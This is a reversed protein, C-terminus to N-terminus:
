NGYLLVKWIVWYLIDCSKSHSVPCNKRRSMNRQVYSLKLGIELMGCKDEM